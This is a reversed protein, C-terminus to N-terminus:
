YDTGVIPLLIDEAFSPKDDSTVPGHVAVAVGLPLCLQYRKLGESFSINEPTETGVDSAGTDKGIVGCFRPELGNGNILYSSPSVM